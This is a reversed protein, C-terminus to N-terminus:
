PVSRRVPLARHVPGRPAPAPGPPGGTGWSFFWDTYLGRVGRRLYASVDDLGNVTHVFSDVHVAALRKVLGENYRDRSMTVVPVNRATVVQLLEDDGINTRYLTFIVTAFSGHLAELWAVELWQDSTYFQPVIRRLLAPDVAEAVQVIKELSTPFDNKTDTIIYVGPYGDVIRLLTELDMLTYLGDYRHKLFEATSVQSVPRDLGVHKEHGTHFCVLDGDATFSLDVEFYRAGIELNHQLAEVSNTYTHGDIGGLAHAILAGRPFRFAHDALASPPTIRADLDQAPLWSATISVALVAALLSITRRM